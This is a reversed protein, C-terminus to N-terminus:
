VGSGFHMQGPKAPFHATSFLSSKEGHQQPGNRRAPACRDSIGCECDPSFGERNECTGPVSLMGVVVNDGTVKAQSNHLLNQM